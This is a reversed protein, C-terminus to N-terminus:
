ARKRTFCLLLSSAAVGGIALVYWVASDATKPSKTETVVQTATPIAPGDKVTVKEEKFAGGEYDAVKVLYTGNAISFTNTFNKDDGVSVTEMQVLTTGSEDFIMIATALVGAEATGSVKLTGNSVETSLSSINAAKVDMVPILLVLSLAIIPLVLNILRKM